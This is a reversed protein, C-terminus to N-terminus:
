PIPLVRYFRSEGETNLLMEEQIGNLLNTSIATWHNLDTSTQLLYQTGITGSLHLLLQGSEYSAADIAIARTSNFNRVVLEDIWGEFNGLTLTSTSNRLAWNAFEGSPIFSVLQGNIKVSYGGKGLAIRLHHWRNRPLANSVSLGGVSFETGGLIRLGEYPNQVFELSANWNQVLSILPLNTPAPKYTVVYIMAELVITDTGSNLLTSNLIEGTAFDGIDDFRLAAGTRDAMWGINATDFRANGALVLPSQQGTADAEDFDFHYLGAMGEGAALTNFQYNNPPLDTAFTAMFNTAAFIRRGDPLLAEAEIWQPGATIPAFTFLPGLFPELDRAEWTISAGALDIEPAFLAITIEEGMEASVPVNIIEGQGSQWPQGPTGFNAWLFAATALGRAQQPVVFETLPNFSDAWRDYPAYPASEAGDFPFTLASLENKYNDV